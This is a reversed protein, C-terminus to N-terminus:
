VEPTEEKFFFWKLYEFGHALLKQLNATLNSLNKPTEYGVINYEEEMLFRLLEENESFKEHSILNILYRELQFRQKDVLDYDKERIIVDTFRPFVLGRYENESHLLNNLSEFQSLKRKV